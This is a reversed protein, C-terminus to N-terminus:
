VDFISDLNLEIGCNKKVWWWLREKNDRKIKTFETLAADDNILHALDKLDDM